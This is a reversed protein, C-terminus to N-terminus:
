ALAVSREATAGTEMATFLTAALQEAALDERRGRVARDTGWIVYDTRQDAMGLSAFVPALSPQHDGYFLLWGAEGTSAAMDTLSRTLIPLMADTGRAHRLWRGFAEADPVRAIDPPLKMAPALSTMGAWPGHNEMTIALVLTRPGHEEVLAAVKAAVEVDAVYAGDRRAAAFAEQGVLHDFGLLKLARHRQYFRMDFPHVCITTYGAARAERVLSPLAPDLFAAYPNFRDLGLTRQSLGTLVAFETRITNAGWCPVALKGHRIAERRVMALEPLLESLSPHLRGADMFSEAQVIVIPGGHGPMSPDPMRPLDFQRAALRRAAREARALTAHMVCCGLLGLQQTDRVPDRTLGLRKYAATLRALAPRWTPLVFCGAALVPALVALAVQAGWPISWVPPEIWFAGVVLLAVAAAGGLVRWTGAFPLYLQPHRVVELLETRDAFVVPEQLVVWKVRDVAALGIALGAIAIASLIPRATMMLAAAFGLAFPLIDVIFGLAPGRLAAGASFRLGLWAIACISVGILVSHGTFVTHM